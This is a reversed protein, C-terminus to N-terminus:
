HWIMDASLPEDWEQPGHLYEQGALYNQFKMLKFTNNWVWSIKDVNRIGYWMLLCSNMESWIYMGLQSFLRPFESITFTAKLTSSIMGVNKIGYWILLFHNMEQSFSRPIESRHRKSRVPSRASMDSAMDYWCFATWRVGSPWASTCRWIFLRPFKNCHRKSHVTRGICAAPIYAVDVIFAPDSKAM